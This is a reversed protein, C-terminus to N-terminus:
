KVEIKEGWGLHLLPVRSCVTSSRTSHYSKASSVAAPRTNHKGPFHFHIPDCQDIPPFTLQVASNLRGPLPFLARYFATSKKDRGRKYAQMYVKKLWVLIRKSGKFNMLSNSMASDRQNIGIYGGRIVCVCVCFVICTPWPPGIVGYVLIYARNPEKINIKIVRQMQYGMVM